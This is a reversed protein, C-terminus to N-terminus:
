LPKRAARKDGKEKEIIGAAELADLLMDIHGGGVAFDSCTYWRDMDADSRMDIAFRKGDESITIKVSM